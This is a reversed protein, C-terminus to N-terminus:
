EPAQEAAEPAAEPAPPPTPTACDYFFADPEDSEVLTCSHRSVRLRGPKGEGRGEFNAFNKPDKMERAYDRPPPPPPPIESTKTYGGMDALTACGMTGIALTAAALLATFRM